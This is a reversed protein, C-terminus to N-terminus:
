YLCSTAMECIILVAVLHRRRLRKINKADRKGRQLWNLISDILIKQVPLM